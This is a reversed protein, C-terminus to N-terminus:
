SHAGIRGEDFMAILHEAPSDAEVGQSPALIFGGNEVLINITERTTRRILDAPGEPLIYQTDIGGYLTINEQTERHLRRVEANRNDIRRM